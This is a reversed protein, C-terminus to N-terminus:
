VTKPCIADPWSTTSRMSCPSRMVRTVTVSLGYDRASELEEAEDDGADPEEGAHEAPVRPQLERQERDAGRDEEEASRELLLSFNRSSEADAESPM